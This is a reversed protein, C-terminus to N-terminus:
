IILTMQSQICLSSTPFLTPIRSNCTQLLTIYRTFSYSKSKDGGFNASLSAGLVSYWINGILKCTNKVLKTM